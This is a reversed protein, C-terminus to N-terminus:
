NHVLEVIRIFWSQYVEVRTSHSSCFYAFSFCPSFNTIPSQGLRGFTANPLTTVGKKSRFKFVFTTESQDYESYIKPVVVRLNSSKISRTRFYLFFELDKSQCLGRRRSIKLRYLRLIETFGFLDTGAFYKLSLNQHCHLNIIKGLTATYMSRHIPKAQGGTGDLMWCEKQKLSVFHDTGNYIIVAFADAAKVDNLPVALALIGNKAYAITGSRPLVTAEPDFIPEIKTTEFAACGCLFVSVVLILYALSRYSIRMFEM